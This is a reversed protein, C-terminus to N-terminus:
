GILVCLAGDRPTKAAVFAQRFAVGRLIVGAFSLILNVIGGLQPFAFRLTVWGLFIIGVYKAIEAIKDTVEDGTHGFQNPPPLVAL